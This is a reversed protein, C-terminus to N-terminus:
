TGLVPMVGVLAVTAFADLRGSVGRELHGDHSWAM